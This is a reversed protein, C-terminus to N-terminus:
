MEHTSVIPDVMKIPRRRQSPHATAPTLLTMMQTM